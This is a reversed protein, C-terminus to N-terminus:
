VSESGRNFKAVQDVDIQAQLQEVLAFMSDVQAAETLLDSVVQDVTLRGGIHHIKQDHLVYEIKRPYTVGDRSVDVHVVLKSTGECKPCGSPGLKSADVSTIKAAANSDSTAM